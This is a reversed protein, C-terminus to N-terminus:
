IDFLRGEFEAIKEDLKQNKERLREELSSLRELIYDGMTYGNKNHWELHALVLDAICELSEYSRFRSLNNEM